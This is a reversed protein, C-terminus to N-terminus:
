KYPLSSAAAWRPPPRPPQLQQEQARAHARARGHAHAHTYVHAHARRLPLAHSRLTMVVLATASVRWLSARSSFRARAIALFSAGLSTAASM